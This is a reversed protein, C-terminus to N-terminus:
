ISSKIFDSVGREGAPDDSDRVSNDLQMDHRQFNTIMIIIIESDDTEGRWGGRHSGM